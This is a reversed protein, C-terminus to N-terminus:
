EIDEGELIGKLEALREEFLREEEQSLEEV